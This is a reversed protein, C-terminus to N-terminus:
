VTTDSRILQDDVLKEDYLLKDLVATPSPPPHLSFRCFIHVLQDPPFLVAQSEDGVQSHLVMPRWESGESGKTAVYAIWM